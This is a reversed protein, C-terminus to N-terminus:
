SFSLKFNLVLEKTKKIRKKKGTNKKNEKCKSFPSVCKCVILLINKNRSKQWTSKKKVLKKLFFFKIRKENKGSIVSFYSFSIFLYFRFLLLNDKHYCILFFLCIKKEFVFYKFAVELGVEVRTM